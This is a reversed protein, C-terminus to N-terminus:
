RNVDFPRLVQIKVPKWPLLDEVNTTTAAKEKENGLVKTMFAETQIHGSHRDELTKDFQKVDFASHMSHGGKLWQRIKTAFKIKDGGEGSGELGTAFIRPGPAGCFPIEEEVIQFPVKRGTTPNKEVQICGVVPAVVRRFDKGDEKLVTAQHFAALNEKLQWALRMPSLLNNKPGLDPLKPTLGHDHKPWSCSLNLLQIEEDSPGLFAPRTRQMIMEVLVRMDGHRVALLRMHDIMRATM